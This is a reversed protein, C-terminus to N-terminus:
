RATALLEDVLPQADYLKALAQLIARVDVCVCRADTEDYVFSNAHSTQNGDFAVGVLRGERDVLPSGSNGGTIDATCVFNLPQALDLAERRQRLRETLAFDGRDGFSHARDYLGHWTTFAPVLTTASPYGSVKGFGLRLTGTADPYARDGYVAFRARAILTAAEEDVARVSDRWAKEARRLIPDVRRALELLPDSDKALAKGKDALLARRAAADDLRTGSLYAAAAEEPARGQLVALALPDQEGLGDRLRRFADAALVEEMDKHVPFPTELRRLLSPLQSAHYGDLREADPKAVEAAYRVMHLANGFFRSGPMEMRYLRDQEHARAWAVSGAALPWARGYQSSINLNAAVADRLDKEQAAKIAQLAPDCLGAYEGELSKLSNGYFYDVTRGRRAEEEGRAMYGRLVERQHRLRALREPYVLEREYDLWAAVRLRETRGPNGSVFVLENEEVGTPDTALFHDVKAPQGNEWVRLFAIDLDHRPYCFNDWDGGFSAAQIEPCFVLRIDTYERYRYLDHRAGGYLTVVEGKLGTKKLCETEIAAKAAARAVRATAADTGPKIAAEVRATVDEISVLVQVTNGPLPIEQERTAAYFGDLVYNRERTSIRQISSLAVHHNTLVLGDPSVFAASAGPDVSALRLHDLWAQTPAFGHRAQIQELPARDFLWMGEDGRATATALTHIALALLTARGIKLGTM